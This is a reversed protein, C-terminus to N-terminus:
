CCSYLLVCQLRVGVLACTLEETRRNNAGQGYTGDAIVIAICPVWLVDSPLFTDAPTTASHPVLRRFARLCPDEM